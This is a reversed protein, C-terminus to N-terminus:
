SQNRLINVAKVFDEFSSDIDYDKVFDKFTDKLQAENYAKGHFKEAMVTSKVVMDFDSSRGPKVSQINVLDRM